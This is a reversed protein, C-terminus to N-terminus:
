CGCFREGFLPLVVAARAQEAALRDREAEDADDIADRAFAARTTEVLAAFEAPHQADALRVGPARVWRMPRHDGVPVLWDHYWRSRSLGIEKFDAGTAYGRVEIRALLRLAQYKWATLQVPCPVGAPLDPVDPPTWAPADFHLPTARELLNAFRAWSAVLAATGDANPKARGWRPEIVILGCAKAVREFSDRRIDGPVLVAAYHPGATAWGDGIAQALVDLNPRLKAQVGVQVGDKVLLLDWGSTEPYVTWGDARASAAFSECLAAESPFTPRKERM